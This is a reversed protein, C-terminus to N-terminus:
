STVKAIINPTSNITLTKTGTTLYVKFWSTDDSNSLFCNSVRKVYCSLSDSLMNEQLLYAEEKTSNQIQTSNPGNVYAFAINSISISFLLTLSLLM